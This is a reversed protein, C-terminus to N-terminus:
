LRGMILSGMGGVKWMAGVVRNRGGTAEGGMEFGRGSM